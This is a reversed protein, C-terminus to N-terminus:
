RCRRRPLPNEGNDKGDRALTRSAGERTWTYQGHGAVSAVALKETSSAEDVTGDYHERQVLGPYSMEATVKMIPLRGPNHVTFRYSYIGTGEHESERPVQVEYTLTVGLLEAVREDLGAVYRSRFEYVGYGIAVVAATTTGIAELAQWWDV